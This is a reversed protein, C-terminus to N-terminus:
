DQNKKRKIEVLLGLCLETHCLELLWQHDRQGVIQEPQSQGTRLSPYSAENM